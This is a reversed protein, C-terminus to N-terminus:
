PACSCHEKVLKPQERLRKVIGHVHVTSGNLSRFCGLRFPVATCTSSLEKIHAYTHIRATVDSQLHDTRRHRKAHTDVLSVDSLHDVAARRFLDLRVILLHTASPPVALEAETVDEVAHGVVVRM